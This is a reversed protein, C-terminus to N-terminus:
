YVAYCLTTSDNWLYNTKLQRVSFFLIFPLAQSLLNTKVVLWQRKITNIVFNSFQKNLIIWTIGSKNEHAKNRYLKKSKDIQKNLKETKLNFLKWFKYEYNYIRLVLEKTIELNEENEFVPDSLDVQFMPSLSKESVIYDGVQNNANAGIQFFGGYKLDEAKKLLRHTELNRFAPM